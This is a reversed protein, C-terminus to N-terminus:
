LIVLTSVILKPIAGPSRRLELAILLSIFRTEFSGSSRTLVIAVIVQVLGRGSQMALVAERIPEVDVILLGIAPRRRVNWGLGAEKARCRRGTRM